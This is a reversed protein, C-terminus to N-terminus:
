SFFGFGWFGIVFTDVQRSRTPPDLKSSAQHSSLRSALSSSEKSAVFAVVFSRRPTFRRRSTQSDGGSGLLGERNTAESRKAAFTVDSISVIM